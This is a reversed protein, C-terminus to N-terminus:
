AANEDVSPQTADASALQLFGVELFKAVLSLRVDDEIGGPIDRVRFRATNVIYLVSEQAGRHINLRGGPYSLDITEPTATLHCFAGASQMLLTDLGIASTPQASPLAELLAV